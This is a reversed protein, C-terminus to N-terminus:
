WTKPSRRGAKKKPRRFLLEVYRRLHDISAEAVAASGKAKALIFAGQLVAQMHLALGEATWPARIRQLKMAAAIDSEVKAAHTSICAECAERIAPNTDYIEQVMTGVLCSFEAIEGTLMAKRFDLYGLVRELPDSHKHYPAIEFFAGTVESWHHAAAVGLADKSKFHHFFAGKTVGAQACLEEVSTAAYGKERIISFAADLLKSRAGGSASREATQPDM